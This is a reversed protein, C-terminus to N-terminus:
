MKDVPAYRLLLRKTGVSGFDITAEAKDGVGSTGTVTGMGFTKHLVRDGVALAVVPRTGATPEPRKLAGTAAIPRPASASPSGSWTLLPEDRRSEVLEPPIEDLFRSAPNHMPSGWASRSLARSLYLRERARTIGVYALRREEELESESGLSRIHPFVGDEMGTLFVVPFELGKATHLTM